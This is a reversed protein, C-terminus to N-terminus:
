RGAAWNDGGGDGDGNCDNVVGDSDVIAAAAAVVM